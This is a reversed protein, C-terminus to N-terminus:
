VKVGGVVKGVYLRIEERLVWKNYATYAHFAAEQQKSDYLFNETKKFGLMKLTHDSFQYKGMYGYPNVVQYKGRSEKFGIAEKFGLYSKGLFLIDNSESYTPDSLVEVETPVYYEEETESDNLALYRFEREESNKDFGLAAVITLSVFLSWLLTKKM